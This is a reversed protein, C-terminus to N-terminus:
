GIRVSGIRGCTSNTTCVCVGHGALIEMIM